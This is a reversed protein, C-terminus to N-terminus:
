PAVEIVRGPYLSQSGAGVVLDGPALGASVLVEDAGYSAVTVPALAVAMTAPDVRWVAPGQATATLAQWPLHIVPPKVIRVHGLVPTGLLPQDQPPDQVEAKVRVTGTAADVVPSVETLRAKLRLTGDIVALDITQGVFTGADVSDPAHFVALRRADAALTVVTQGAGTVQGEEATRGTVIVDAPARLVADDVARQARAVQAAAQDRAARAATLQQEAADLDARTAVGGALQAAVRAQVSQAQTLAAEAGLAQAAAAEHAAEAQTPDVRAIEDGKALHDGVQVAVSVIRGGDRFGASITDPAEVTGALRYDLVEPTVAVTVVQVPLPVDARAAPGLALSALVMPLVSRM